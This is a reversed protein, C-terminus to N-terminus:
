SSYINITTENTNRLIQITSIGCDPLAKFIYQKVKLDQHFLDAYRKKPAYWSSDWKRIIGIRQIKPNVKQGM